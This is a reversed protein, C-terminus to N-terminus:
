NAILQSFAISTIPTCVRAYQKILDLTSSKPKHTILEYDNSENSSSINGMPM